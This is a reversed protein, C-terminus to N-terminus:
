RGPPPSGGSTNGPDKLQAIADDVGRCKWTLIEMWKIM